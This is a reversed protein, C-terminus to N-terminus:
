LNLKRIPEAAMVIICADEADQSGCHCIAAAGDSYIEAGCDACIVGAPTFSAMKILGEYFEKFPGDNASM